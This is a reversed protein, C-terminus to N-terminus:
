NLVTKRSMGNLTRDFIYSFSSPTQEKGLVPVIEGSDDHEAISAHSTDAKEPRLFAVDHELRVVDFSDQSFSNEWNLMESFPVFKVILGVKFAAALRALTELTINAAGPTELLSIRSQLMGSEQALDAQRPMDSKFRLARIQSPVLTSIKAQVYAARSDRDTLLKSIRRSRESM